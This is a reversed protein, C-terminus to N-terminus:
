ADVISRTYTRWHPAKMEDDKRSAVRFWPVPMWIEPAADSDVWGALMSAWWSLTSNSMIIASATSMELLADWAASTESVSVPLGIHPPPELLGISDTYVVVREMGHSSALDAALAWQHQSDTLGHFRATRPHTALDGLRVHLALTRAPLPRVSSNGWAEHIVGSLRGRNREVLEVSQWWGDLLQVRATTELVGTLSGTRDDTTVGGWRPHWIWWPLRRQPLGLELGELEWPRPQHSRSPREFWSVDLLVDGASDRALDYAKALQFLQNGLGGTMRVFRRTM